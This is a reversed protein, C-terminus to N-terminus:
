RSTCSLTAIFLLSGPLTYKSKKRLEEADAQNKLDFEAKKAENEEMAIADLMAKRNAAAIEAKIREEEEVQRRIMSDMKRKEEAQWAAMERQGQQVWPLHSYNPSVAIIVEFARELQDMQKLMLFAVLMYQNVMALEILEEDVINWDYFKHVIINQRQQPVGPILLDCVLSLRRLPVKMYFPQGRAMVLDFPVVGLNLVHRYFGEAPNAKMLQLLTNCTALICNEVAPTPWFPHTQYLSILASALVDRARANQGGFAIQWLEPHKRAEMTMYMAQALMIVYPQGCAQYADSTGLAITVASILSPTAQGSSLPHPKLRSIALRYTALARELQRCDGCYAVIPWLDVDTPSAMIDAQWRKLQEGFEAPTPPAPAYMAIQAAAAVNLKLLWPWVTSPM